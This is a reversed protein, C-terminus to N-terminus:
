LVPQVNGIMHSLLVQRASDRDGNLITLQLDEIESTPDLGLERFRIRLRSITSLSAAVDGSFFQVSALLAEHNSENGNLAYADQLAQFFDGELLASICRFKLLRQELRELWSRHTDFWTTNPLDTGFKGRGLIELGETAIRRAKQHNLHIAAQCNSLLATARHLDICEAPVTISTGGGETGRLGPLTVLKTKSDCGVERLERRFESLHKRLNARASSPPTAGWLAETLIENSVFTNPNLALAAIVGRRLGSGPSVFGKPGEIALPFGLHIRLDDM